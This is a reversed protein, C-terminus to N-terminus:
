AASCTVGGAGGLGAGLSAPLALGAGDSDAWAGADPAGPAPADLAGLALLLPLLLGIGPRGGAGGAGDVGRGVASPFPVGGSLARSHCGLSASWASKAAKLQSWASLRGSTASWGSIEQLLSPVSFYRSPGVSIWPSWSVPAFAPMGWFSTCHTTLRVKLESPAAANSFAVPSSALRLSGIFRNAITSSPSDIEAGDTLAAIGPPWAWIEPLKVWDEALSSALTSLYPASGSANPTESTKLTEPGRPPSCSRAPMM